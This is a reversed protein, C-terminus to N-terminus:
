LLNNSDVGIFYYDSRPFYGISNTCLAIWYGDTFVIQKADPVITLAESDIHQFVLRM